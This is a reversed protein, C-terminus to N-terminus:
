SRVEWRYISVPLRPKFLNELSNRRRPCAVTCFDRLLTLFDDARELLGGRDAPRILFKIRLHQFFGILLKSAGKISAFASKAARGLKGPRHGQIKECTKIRAM